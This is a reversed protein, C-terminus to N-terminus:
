YGYFRNLWGGLVNFAIRYKQSLERKWQEDLFIREDERNRMRNGGIGLYPKGRYAVM